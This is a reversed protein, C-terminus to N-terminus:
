HVDRLIFRDIINTKIETVLQGTLVYFWLSIFFCCGACQGLHCGSEGLSLSSILSLELEVKVRPLSCPFFFDLM